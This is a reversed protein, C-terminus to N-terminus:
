QIDNTEGSELFSREKGITHEYEYRRLIELDVDLQCLEYNMEMLERVADILGAASYMTMETTIVNQIDTFRGKKLAEIKNSHIFEIRTRLNSLVERKRAEFEKLKACITYLDDRSELVEIPVEKQRGLRGAM